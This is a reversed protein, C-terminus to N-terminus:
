NLSMEMITYDIVNRLVTSGDETTGIIDWGNIHTSVDKHLWDIKPGVKKGNTQSILKLFPSNIRRKM